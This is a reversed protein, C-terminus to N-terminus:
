LPNRLKDLLCYLRIDVLALLSSNVSDLKWLPLLLSRTRHRCQGQPDALVLTPLKWPGWDAGRSIGSSERVGPWTFCTHSSLKENNIVQDYIYNQSSRIHITLVQEHKKEQKLLYNLTFNSHPFVEFMFCEVSYHGM